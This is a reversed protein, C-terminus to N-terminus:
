HVLHHERNSTHGSVLTCRTYVSDGHATTRSFAPSNTAEALSEHSALHPSVAAPMTRPTEAPGRCWRQLEVTSRSSARASCPDCRPHTLRRFEDVEVTCTRGVNRPHHHRAAHLAGLQSIQGANRSRDPSGRGSPAPVEPNNGVSSHRDRCTVCRPRRARVYSRPNTGQQRVLLRVVSQKGPQGQRISSSDATAAPAM